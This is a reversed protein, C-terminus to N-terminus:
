KDCLIDEFEELTYAKSLILKGIENVYSVVHFGAKDLHQDAFIM